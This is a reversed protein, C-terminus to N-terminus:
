KLNLRQGMCIRLCKLRERCQGVWGGVVYGSEEGDGRVLFWCVWLIKNITNEINCGSWRLRRM